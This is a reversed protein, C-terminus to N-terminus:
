AAAAAVVAKPGATISYQSFIDGDSTPFPPNAGTIRAHAAIEAPAPNRMSYSLDDRILGWWPYPGNGLVYRM